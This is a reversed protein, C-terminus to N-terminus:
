GASNKAQAKMGQGLAGRLGEAALGSGQPDRM